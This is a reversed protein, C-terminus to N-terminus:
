DTTNRELVEGMIVSGNSPFNGSSRKASIKSFTHHLKKRSQVPFVSIHTRKM